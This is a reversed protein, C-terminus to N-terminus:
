TGVQGSTYTNEINVNYISVNNAMVFVTSSADLSGANYSGLYHSITM